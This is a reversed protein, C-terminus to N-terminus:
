ISFHGYNLLLFVNAQFFFLPHDRVTQSVDVLILKGNNYYSFQGSIFAFAYWDTSGGANFTTGFSVCFVVYSFAASLSPIGLLTRDAITM